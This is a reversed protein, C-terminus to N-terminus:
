LAPGAPRSPRGAQDAPDRRLSIVVCCRRKGVLAAPQLALPVLSAVDGGLVQAGGELTVTQEELSEEGGSGSVPGVAPAAGATAPMSIGLELGHCKREVVGSILPTTQGTRVEFSLLMAHWGTGSAAM